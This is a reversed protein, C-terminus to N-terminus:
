GTVIITCRISARCDNGLQQMEMQHLGAGYNTIRAPRRVSVVEFRDVPFIGDDGPYALSPQPDFRRIGAHIPLPRTDYSHFPSRPRRESRAVRSARLGSVRRPGAQDNNLSRCPSRRRAHCLGSGAHGIAPPRICRPREIDNLFPGEPDRHALGVSRRSGGRVATTDCDNPNQHGSDSGGERGFDIWTGRVHHPCPRLTPKPLVEAAYRSRGMTRGRDKRATLRLKLWSQTIVTATCGHMAARKLIM